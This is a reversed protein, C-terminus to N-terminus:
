RQSCFEGLFGGSVANTESGFCGWCLVPVGSSCWRVSGEVALHVRFLGWVLASGALEGRRHGDVNPFLWSLQLSRHVRYNGSVGSGWSRTEENGCQVGFKPPRQNGFSGHTEFRRLRGRAPKMAAGARHLVDGPGFVKCQSGQGVTAPLDHTNPRAVKFDKFVPKRLKTFHEPELKLCCNTEAPQCKM